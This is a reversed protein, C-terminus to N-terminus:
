GGQDIKASAQALADPTLMKACKRAFKESFADPVLYAGRIVEHFLVHTIPTGCISEIQCEFANPRVYFFADGTRECKLSSIKELGETTMYRESLTIYLSRVDDLARREAALVMFTAILAIGLLLVAAATKTRTM